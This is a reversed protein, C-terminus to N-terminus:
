QKVIKKIVSGNETKLEALYINNPHGSLDFSIEQLGSLKGLAKEAIIRGTIDKILIVAAQENMNVLISILGNSPNPYLSFGPITTLATQEIGTSADIIFNHDSIDFFVNGVSQVMIRAKITFLDPDNPLTILESGDNSTNALLTVPYTYGGDVSLLINVQSCNIPTVDTASVDWTVTHNTNIGWTDANTPYTVKFPAGTNIVSLTVPTDDYTLGGGDPRNDRVIFRFKLSRAYTPLTEGNSITGNIISTLKPFYRYPVSDAKMSRFSPANGSPTNMNTAAGKDIEDWMYSLSDGDADSGSGTLKFYTKYPITFNSGADAVPLTNGTEVLVPCTSGESEFAFDCIEDYSGVHFFPDSHAQLDNPSCIGAYAMISSGSGPEFATGASRNGGGCSGTTSNFTHNGGFQHGMEHAVYDVDFADGTPNPLGTVGNAKQNNLCVVGLGAIGGGGTSFVHGIDYNASGILTNINDQNQDLMVFGDNNTYPDTAGVLYILTDNNAILELRIGFESEYIGTVRNISTTMGSLAGSKTGGKTTAYEGTCALALRYIRLQDGSSRYQPTSHKKELQIDEDAEGKVECDFAYERHLDKKNYAIYYSTSENSVPDIFVDGRPSLIMAHFGFDTVDIRIHARPDTIGSGAYTKIEPYKAALEPAMVPSEYIEFDDITGGPMPLSLVLSKTRASGSFEKPATQLHARMSSINLQLTRYDTPTSYRTGYSQVMGSNVDQWFSASQAFTNIATSNLLICLTAFVMWQSKRLLLFLRM